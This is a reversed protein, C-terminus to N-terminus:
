ALVQPAETAAPPLQVIAINNVGEALPARPAERVMVSLALPLGCATDTEPVPVCVPDVPCM